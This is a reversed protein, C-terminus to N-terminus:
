RAKANHVDLDGFKGPPFHNLAWEVEEERTEVEGELRAFKLGELVDGILPGKRYGLDILDRGTLMPRVRHLRLLYVLLRRRVRWRNTSAAWFLIVTFSVNELAKVIESNKKEQRGGLLQEIARLGDLAERVIRGEEQGLHLRAIAAESAQPESELLLACLFALWETKGFDPLDRGMRKLFFSLRLFAKRCDQGIKLGVALNQWFGLESLRRVIPFPEKETLILELESRLRVGSLRALLGGRICSELLRLTTPGIRFHLRQELRVGRLVRTPDEVFSLNHLVNLTRKQLDRRGGFYDHLKGWEGPNVTIAMANVTYDRRFLDHKLSDTTVEPQAVPFEYFERRATAVDVKRGGPFVITGTKFRQHIAIRCGDREWSRAFEVADGEIVMDLDLNPRGLLLDRVFGGVVHAKMGLTEAREGLRRLLIQIWPVLEQAMLEGVDETWPRSIEGTQEEPALSYPFLARLLDTRTVIGLLKGRSDVVPLRGINYLVMMRHAESVSAEPSVTIAGETMFDSVPVNGLGHLEAKDLDKRTIIGSIGDQNVVPLAAHGYRIMLRYADDIALGPEVAMVPSSMVDRVQVLPRISEELKRELQELIGKQLSGPVTVSAAQPHGGGGWPELFKAVDILEPRGRAVIYTRNEMYVVALAVDADFFDRLRHVFLSIGEVYAESSTESLVVKAGGLFRTRANEILNDLLKREGANLNMEIHLPVITLDAGMERLRAAAHFDRSTTSGFTLAGTDEYIGMSFLTAEFPQIPINLAILKEVLLTTTSGVPEIFAKQAPIEDIVPPHHDYVHILVGEKGCLSGFPGIRSRSRADVIVLHDVEDFNVRRPTLVKWRNGFRKLFERLNRCAAGSFCLVSDDYLKSAAVMSSFSDFDAGIHSTIIRL